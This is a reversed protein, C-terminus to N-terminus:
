VLPGQPLPILDAVEQPESKLQLPIVQFYCLSMRQTEMEAIRWVTRQAGVRRLQIGIQMSFSWLHRSGESA